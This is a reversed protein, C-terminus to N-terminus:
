RRALIQKEAEDPLSGLCTVGFWGPKERDKARAKRIARLARPDGQKGLNEVASRRVDCAEENLDVIWASVYEARSAKGLRSLTQVAGWRVAHSDHKALTELQEEVGALKFRTILAAAKDQQKTGFCAVLNGLMQEDELSKDLELARAYAALGATRRRAEFSAHGLALQASADDPRKKARETAEELSPKGVLAQVPSIVTGIEPGGTWMTVAVAGVLLVAIGSAILIKPHRRASDVARSLPRTVRDLRKMSCRRTKLREVSTLRPM